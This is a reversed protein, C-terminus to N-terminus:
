LDLCLDKCNMECQVNVCYRLFNCSINYKLWVSDTKNEKKFIYEHKQEWYQKAPCCVCYWGAAVRSPPTSNSANEVSCTHVGWHNNSRICIRILQAYKRNSRIEHQLYVFKNMFRQSKEIDYVCCRCTFMNKNTPVFMEIINYKVKLSTSVM